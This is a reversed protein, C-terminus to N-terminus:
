LLEEDPDIPCKRAMCRREENMRFLIHEIKEDLEKIKKELRRKARLLKPIETAANM